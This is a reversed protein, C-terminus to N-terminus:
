TTKDLEENLSAVTDNAENLRANIMWYQAQHQELESRDAALADFQPKLPWVESLYSFVYM